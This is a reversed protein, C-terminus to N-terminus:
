MFGSGIDRYTPDDWRLGAKADYLDNNTLLVFQDGYLDPRVPEAAKTELLRKRARIPVQVLYPQLQRAIASPSSVFSLDRVLGAIKAAAPKYPVIVPAQTDDILRFLRSVTEYPFLLTDARDHLMKLINHRDLAGSLGKKWYLEQFYARIADLGLPDDTRSLVQAATQAFVKLDAPPGHGEEETPDFLLVRGGETGLEGHRNCRGAAQAVSDLGALARMVLPFSIDVGAEVLSTAVVRVPRRNALDERIDALVARRHDACLATTLLRPEDDTATKLATYLDAAHRRSNVITLCQPETRMADVLTAMDPRGPLMEVRVRKLERYLGVPDPALERVGDLGDAFLKSSSVAPQTATCLVLTCGFDRALADILKLCPRLLPQPLTQAEDLIIVSGAINHLKRCKGPRNSFLSEFFQVATTVVLPRDWNEAALRAKTGGDRGEADKDRADQWDRAPDFGSHHELVADDDGLAKRFVDATQEVISTFPIVYIVRRKGWRVAHNLAFALSVLTKGGGTPVTLSFLGPEQEAQSLVHDLVRARLANVPGLAPDATVDARARASLGELHEALRDRLMAVDSDCGRQVQQQNLHAYFAETALRDADILCSFLMRGLLSRRFGSDLHKLSKRVLEAPPPEVGEPWRKDGKFRELRSKLPTLEGQVGDGDALGAHHGAIGGALLPGWTKGYRDCAIVAGATSHDPSPGQGKIYLQYAEAMKGVDHLLGLARGAMGFGFPTAFRQALEAVALLHTVLPEWSEYDGARSSHAYLM